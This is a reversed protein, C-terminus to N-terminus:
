GGGGAEGGLGVGGAFLRGLLAAVVLYTAVPATSSVNEVAGRRYQTRHERRLLDMGYLKSLYRLIREAWEGLKEGSPRLSAKRVSMVPTGCSQSSGAVPPQGSWSVKWSSRTEPASYEGVSFRMANLM